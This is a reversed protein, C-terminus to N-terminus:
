STADGIPLMSTGDVPADIPTDDQQPDPPVYAAHMWVITINSNSSEIPRAITTQENAMAVIVPQTPTRSTHTNTSIPPTGPGTPTGRPITIWAITCAIMLMAAIATARLLRPWFSMTAIVPEGAASDGSIQQAIRQKLQVSPEVTDNARKLAAQFDNWGSDGRQPNNRHDSM